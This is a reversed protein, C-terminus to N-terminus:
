IEEQRFKFLRFAAYITYFGCVSPHSQLPAPMMQKYHENNFFNYGKCGLSDAFYLEQWFKAIMIWHEGQMNSPQMNIIAFTDNDLTPVRDSPFSGFYRFKLLFIRNIIQQLAFNDMKVYEMWCCWVQWSCRENVRYLSKLLTKLLTPLVWSWDWHNELLNLITVTKLLTKYQLWTLCWCMTIKLIMLESQPIIMGFTWQKWPLWM